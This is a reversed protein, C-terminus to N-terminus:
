EEEEEKIFANIIADNISTQIKNKRFVLLILGVFFYFGAVILFGGGYGFETLEGVLYAVGFNLTIFFISAVIIVPLWSLANSLVESTKDLAKLKIIEASTKGFDRGKEIVEDILENQNEM